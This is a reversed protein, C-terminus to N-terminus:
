AEGRGAGMRQLQEDAARDIWGEFRAARSEPTCASDGCECRTQLSLEVPYCLPCRETGDDNHAMAALGVVGLANGVIANHAAMLPDPRGDALDAAAQAGDKAILGDLGRVRIADRLKDWHANCMRM